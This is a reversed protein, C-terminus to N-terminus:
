SASILPQLIQDLSDFSGEAIFAGEIKYPNQGYFIRAPKNADRNWQIGFWRAQTLVSGSVNKLFTPYPFTIVLFRGDGPPYAMAFGQSLEYGYASM